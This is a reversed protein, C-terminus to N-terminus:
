SSDNVSINGNRMLELLALDAGSAIPNCGSEILVKVIEDLSVEKEIHKEMYKMNVTGKSMEDEGFVVMYPIGRELAEDLQKKFKPNELHSYVASINATWLMRAIKMRQALTDGGISAVYVKSSV